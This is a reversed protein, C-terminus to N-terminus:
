LLTGQKAAQPRSAPELCAADDNRVSNVRSSVYEVTFGDAPAPRLLTGAERSPDLWTEHENPALIVPMRHHYPALAANAETTIFTFTEVIEGTAPATWREFLGAFAFPGAPRRVVVPVRPTTTQDEPWEYYGDAPVLCRRARFAARFAPKEAVSEARANIMRGGISLEKAWSPVLGWRSM